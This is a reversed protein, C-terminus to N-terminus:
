DIKELLFFSLVRKQYSNYVIKKESNKKTKNQKMNELMDVQKRKIEYM